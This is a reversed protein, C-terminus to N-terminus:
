QDEVDLCKVSTYFYENVKKIPRFRVYKRKVCERERLVLVEKVSRQKNEETPM